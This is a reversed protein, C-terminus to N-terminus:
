GQPRRRRAIIEEIQEETMGRERLRERLAELQEPTPSGGRPEGEDPTAGWGRQVREEIQEESLGMSRLRGKIAEQTEAPLSDFSGPGSDPGPPAGARMAPGGPARARAGAPRSAAPARPAEAPADAVAGGAAAPPESAAAPPESAAPARAAPDAGPARAGAGGPPAGPAPRGGPPGGGAGPRGRGGPPGGGAAMAALREEIQEDTMGRARMRERMQARREETMQSGGATRVPTEEAGPGALIQVPTADTLGDQGVVIVRDGRALGGTVEVRDDEEYGLTINRRYAVGDEVVFVSDALSELSLARKPMILADDRVDTVLRVGAFMGPSLRGQRNVELTVRITGTAADVVPSIRLVRGQFQEGPFAEVQLIAPQGISLRALDREPVGIVCLLPDFDSIRFLQQGATVTEGFKVARQIILGDFPATIRTYGLQIENGSLQAKASELASLATDYVEQSVVANEFSAKARNYVNEADQLAVRAIEVQARAELEDIQALVEGAKVQVGEETNLAVLPGGTRAVIDVEREAELTGNTEIFASIEGPLIEVVEVPVATVPASGGGFGGPPGGGSRGGPGSGGGPGAAEEGSGCAVTAALGALLLARLLQRGPVRRGGFTTTKFQPM